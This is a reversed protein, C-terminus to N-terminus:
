FRTGVHRGYQFRSPDEDFMKRLAVSNRDKEAVWNIAELVGDVDGDMLPQIIIGWDVPATLPHLIGSEEIAGMVVSRINSNLDLVEFSRELVHKVTNLDVDKYERGQYYDNLWKLIVHSQQRRLVMKRDLVVNWHDRVSYKDALDRMARRFGGGDAEIATVDAIFAKEETNLLRLKGDENRWIPKRGILRNLAVIARPAATRHQRFLSDKVEDNYYM